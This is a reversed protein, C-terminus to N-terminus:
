DKAGINKPDKMPVAAIAFSGHLGRTVNMDSIKGKGQNRTPFLTYYYTIVHM